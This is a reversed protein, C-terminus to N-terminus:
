VISAQRVRYVRRRYRSEWKRITCDWIVAYLCHLEEQVIIALQAFRRM